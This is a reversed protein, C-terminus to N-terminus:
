CHRGSGSCGFHKTGGDLGFFFSMLIYKDLLTLYSIKPLEQAVMYKFAVSTLVLTLTVSLRDALEEAPIAWSTFVLVSLLFNPLHEM